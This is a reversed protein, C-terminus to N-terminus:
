SSAKVRGNHLIIIKIDQGGVDVIVHPIKRLVERQNRIRLLKSWRSTRRSSM